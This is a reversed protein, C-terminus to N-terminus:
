REKEKKPDETIVCVKYKECVGDNYAVCMRGICENLNVSQFDGHGRLMAQNWQITTLDPCYKNM